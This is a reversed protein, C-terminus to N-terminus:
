RDRRFFQYFNKWSISGQDENSCLELLPDKGITEVYDRYTMYIKSSQYRTCKISKLLDDSLYGEYGSKKVLSVITQETTWSQQEAVEPLFTASHPQYTSPSQFTIIIGHVGVVWDYCNSCTEYNVLLSIGVRLDKLDKATIPHFRQDRFASAITFNKLAIILEQNSSLTGICGRLRYEIEEEDENEGSSMTRYRKDWTVFLPCRTRYNPIAEKLTSDIQEEQKSTYNGASFIYQIIINFAYICMEPSAVLGEQHTPSDASQSSRTM